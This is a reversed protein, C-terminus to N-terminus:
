SKYDIFSLIERSVNEPQSYHPTHAADPFKIFKSGKIMQNLMMGYKIEVSKDLEGWLILTKVKIQSLDSQSLQDMYLDEELISKIVYDKNENLSMTREYIEKAYNKGGKSNEIDDFFQELGVSDELILGKLPYNRMAYFAAVWGGYSHGFIYPSIGIQSVLGNITDAEVSIRYDIKPADSKGHGLLDVLYIDLDDPLQKVLTLWSRTNAGIGHLFIISEGSGKHHKYYLRGYKTDTYAGVFDTEYDM